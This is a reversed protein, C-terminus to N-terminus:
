EDVLIIPAIKLPHDRGPVVISDVGPAHNWAVNAACYRRDADTVRPLSALYAAGLPSGAEWAVQVLEGDASVAVIPHGRPAYRKLGQANTFCVKKGIM